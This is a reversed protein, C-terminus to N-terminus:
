LDMNGQFQIAHFRNLYNNTTLTIANAADTFNYFVPVGLHICKQTLAFIIKVHEVSGDSDFFIFAIPKNSARTTALLGDIMNLVREIGNKLVFEPHFFGVLFDIGDWCSVIRVTETLKNLDTV